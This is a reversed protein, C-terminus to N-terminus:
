FASSDIANVHTLSVWYELPWLIFPIVVKFLAVSTATYVRTGDAAVFVADARTGNVTVPAGIVDGTSTDVATVVSQATESLQYARSGDPSFVGPRGAWGPVSAPAAVLLGDTGILAVSSLYPQGQPVSWPNLTQLVQSGDASVVAGRPEAGLDVPTGVVTSDTTDIVTAVMRPVDTDAYLDHSVLYVRDDEAGFVTASSVNGIGGPMPVPTGVITGDAADLITLMSQNVNDTTLVALRTGGQVYVAPVDPQRYGNLVVSTVVVGTQPDLMTVSTKGAVTADSIQVVHAGDPSTIVGRDVRGDLAVYGAVTNDTTDIVTVGTSHGSGVPLLTTQYARSGDPNMTLGFEPYGIIQLRNGIRSGTRGDIVNVTLVGSNSTMTEQFVHSGDPTGVVGWVPSGALTVTRVATSNVTNITALRTTNEGGSLTLYARTGDPSLAVPRVPMGDLAVPVGVIKNTRTDIETLSYSSPILLAVPFPLFSTVPETVVYLRTGDPSLTTSLPAGLLRVGSVGPSASIPDIRDLLGRIPTNNIVPVIVNVVQAVAVFPSQIAPLSLRPTVSARTARRAAPAVPRSLPVRRKSTATAHHAGKSTASSSPGPPSVGSDANAVGTAGALGAGVGVTVAGAVLWLYPQRNSLRSRGM